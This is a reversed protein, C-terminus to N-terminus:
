PAVADERHAYAHEPGEEHLGTEGHACLVWEGHGAAWERKWIPARKKVEDILYRCALFAADRHGCAAATVVALDGPSLRGVRHLVATREAGFLEEAEAAIKDIVLEAVGAYAEYDLFEVVGRAIRDPRVSGVFVTVGGLEPASVHAYAEDVGIPSNRLEILRHRGPPTRPGPDADDCGDPHHGSRQVSHVMRDITRHSGARHRMRIDEHWFRAM